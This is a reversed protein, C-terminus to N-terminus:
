LRHEGTPYPPSCHTPKSAPGKNVRGRNWGEGTTTWDSKREMELLEQHM